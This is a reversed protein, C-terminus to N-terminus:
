QPQAPLPQPPVPPWYAGVFGLIEASPLYQELYGCYRCVYADIVSEATTPLTRGPVMAHATNTSPHTGVYLTARGFHVTAQGCKICVGRRV